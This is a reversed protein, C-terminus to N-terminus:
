RQVEYTKLKQWGTVDFNNLTMTTGGYSDFEEITLADPEFAQVFEPLARAVRNVADEDVPNDITLTRPVEGSEDAEIVMDQIKPHITMITHSGALETVHRACRFAAPMVIQRYGRKEFLRCCRKTAALTACELEYTTLGVGREDNVAVLYDQLRGLVFASTSHAPQIGAATARKVGREHAEAAAVMQSITPNVTPNTPIGLAALEELVWMGAASGPIKVKINKAWSAFTKGMELMGEANSSLSPQVQARIYGYEGNSEEFINMLRASIRRVVVGILEVVKADGEIGTPIQAVDEAFEEPLTSLVQYTLPPNSTCGIAGSALASEIEGPIASDNCWRSRTNDSMWKLFKHEKM